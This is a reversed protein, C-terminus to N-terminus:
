ARAAERQLIARLQFVSAASILIVLMWGVASAYGLDGTDFGMMFLYMVITTAFPNKGQFMVYPLEFLQFSGVIGVLVMFTLVPRIGPLTIHWFRQWPNAGDVAAAEYLDRDVAQLAALFYIMGHGVSLWLSAMVIAPMALYRNTLWATESGISPFIKGIALNILGSREALLLSFMVAVFVGGVLHSSFFAFRFLNRFRLRKSNLLLALGLSLILQLPLFFLAFYLTNGLSLWFAKDHLVFAYNGLGVFKSTRPTAFKHLSLVMSRMLPWAMFCCFLIFFPAVFLYPAFKAQASWLKQRLSRM